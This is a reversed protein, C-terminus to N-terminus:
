WGSGVYKAVGHKGRRLGMGHDLLKPRRVGDGCGM